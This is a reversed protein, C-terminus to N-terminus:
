IAMEALILKALQEANASMEGLQTAKTAGNLSVYIMGNKELYTGEIPMGDKNIVIKKM